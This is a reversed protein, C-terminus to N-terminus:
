DQIISNLVGQDIDPSNPNPPTPCWILSDKSTCFMLSADAKM